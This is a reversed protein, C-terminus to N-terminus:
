QLRTLADKAHKKIQMAARSALVKELTERYKAQGSYGLLKVYMGMTKEQARSASADSSDMYKLVQQNIEDSLRLDNIKEWNIRDSALRKYDFDDSKLLNLLQSVRLSDGESHNQRSAMIGNKGKHWAILDLEDSCESRISAVKTSKKIDKLFSEAEATGMSAIAKVMWAGYQLDERKKALTSEDRKLRETLAQMLRPDGIGSVYIERTAQFMAARTGTQAVETYKQIEGTRDFEGPLAQAVSLWMSAIVATIVIITKM